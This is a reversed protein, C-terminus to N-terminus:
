GDSDNTKLKEIFDKVCVYNTESTIIQIKAAQLAKEAKPGVEGTMVQSVNKSIVLQASQIGAGSGADVNPNAIAEFTHDSDDYIIFYRCRGFRPDVQSQLNDSNATICIKM